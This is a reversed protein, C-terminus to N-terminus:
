KARALPRFSFCNIIIEVEKGDRPAKGEVLWLNIHVPLPRQPIYHLSGAPLYAWHAYENQDNDRHGRLSQFRIGSSRWLFRQTTDYLGPPMPFPHATSKLGAHAPYVTESAPLASPNGWRSYEIDIENTGNPGVEPPPFNFLGLVVNPDLRDLTGTVQFQYRGFGLRRRTSVEACQWAGGQRTIKLHLRGQTDVRVNGPNWQNPGPGGRGPPRVEWEYGSFHIVRVGANPDAQAVAAAGSGLLLTAALLALKHSQATMLKSEKCNNRHM